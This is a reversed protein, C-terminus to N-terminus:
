PVHLCEEIVRRVIPDDEQDFLSEIEAKVRDTMKAAATEIASVRTAWDPDRLYPFIADEIGDFSSLTRIATRRIERDSTLLMGILAEKAEEGGIKGIAEIAATVVLGNDDRLLRVLDGLGRRDGMIGLSRAAAARVNDSADEMLLSLSDYVGEGGLFGLSLAASMRIGPDEDTLAFMLYRVSEATGISALAEVVASRVFIDEDKLAFGLAPVAVQESIRGLILAANRRLFRNKDKLYGVFEEVKLGRGLKGLAKVVAEQVDQYPDTLLKKLPEIAREDGINALGAASIARVHGDSSGLEREFIPYYLPAAVLSAVEAVFRKKQPSDTDFLPVLYEPRRGGIFILAGKVEDILDDEASLDLLPGLAGEDQALGLLLIASSRVDRKKSWANSILVTIGEPGCLRYLAESIIEAAIGNRYFMEVAKVAEEQVAKSKDMLFPFVHELTEVVSLRGLSKLAPERLAKISLAEILAPVARRDGIRGLADAAPFATWVDGSRLIGILGDVVAPEALNGLYEVASARVNDDEDHLSELLLPLADRDRIEGLIDIIFKRVDRNPTEFASMLFTTAKKGLHVFVEIATNRAGANDGKYLLQLLGHLYRNMPYEAILLDAGTKRIRWSKDEIAKLLLPVAEDPSRGKLGEVTKKRVEVDEHELLREIDEM